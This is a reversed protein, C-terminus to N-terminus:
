DQGISTTLPKAVISDLLVDERDPETVFRRAVRTYPLTMRNRILELSITACAEFSMQALRTALCPIFIPAAARSNAEFATHPTVPISAAPRTRTSASAASSSSTRVIAPIRSVLAPRRASGRSPSASFSPRCTGIAIETRPLMPSGSIKASRRGNARLSSGSTALAARSAMWTIPM